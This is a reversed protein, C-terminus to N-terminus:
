VIGLNDNDEFVVLKPGKKALGGAWALGGPRDAFGQVDPGGCRVAKGARSSCVSRTRPPMGYPWFAHVPPLASPWRSAIM